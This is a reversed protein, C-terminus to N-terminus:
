KKGKEKESKKPTEGNLEALLGKLDIGYASAVDGIKLTGMEYAAMPCHLCPTNYKELIEAAGKMKLIDALKTDKTVKAMRVLTTANKGRKKTGPTIPFIQFTMGRTTTVTKRMEQTSDRSIRGPWRAWAM